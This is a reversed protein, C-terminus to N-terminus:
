FSCSSSNPMTGMRETGMEPTWLPSSPPHHRRPLLCVRTEASGVTAYRAPQGRWSDTPQAEDMEELRASMRAVTRALAELGGPVAGAQLLDEQRATLAELGEIREDIQRQHSAIAEVRLSLAELEDSREDAETQRGSMAEPVVVPSAAGPESAQRRAIAERPSEPPREEEARRAARAASAGSGPSGPRPGEREHRAALAQIRASLLEESRAVGQLEEDLRASLKDIREPLAPLELGALCQLEEDLRASLKDIREPLAPLELRALGRLEEGLRASLTELDEDLRAALRDVRPPLPVLEEVRRSLAELRPPLGELAALRGEAGEPQRAELDAAAARAELEGVREALAGFAGRLEASLEGSPPPPSPSRGVGEPPGDGCPVGDAGRAAAEGLARAQEEVVEEAARRAEALVAPAMRAADAQAAEEAARRAEEVVAAAQLEAGAKAEALMSALEERSSRSERDLRERVTQLEARTEQCTWTQLDVKESLAKMQERAEAAADALKGHRGSIAEALRGQQDGAEQLSRVERRLDEVAAEVGSLIRHQAASNELGAAEAASAAAGGKACLERLEAVAATLGGLSARQEGLQRRLDAESAQLERRDHELQVEVRDQWVGVDSRIKDAIRQFEDGFSSQLSKVKAVIAESWWVREDALDAMSAGDGPSQGQRRTSSPAKPQPSGAARKAAARPPESQASGPLAGSSPLVVSSRASGLGSSGPALTPM